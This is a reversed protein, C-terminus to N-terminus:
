TQCHCFFNLSGDLHLCVHTHTRPVERDGSVLLDDQRWAERRDSEVFSKNYM